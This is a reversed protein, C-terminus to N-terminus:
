KFHCAFSKIKEESLNCYSQNHGLIASALKKEIFNLKEYHIEYGFIEKCVAHTYLEIPFATELERRRIEEKEGACIFLGIRKKMLIPLNAAMYKALKKQIKGMYISGGLVVNEYPALNPVDELMINLIQIEGELWAKLMSAANEASGHKTAYIIITRM